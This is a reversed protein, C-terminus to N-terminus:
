SPVIQTAVNEIKALYYELFSQIPSSSPMSFNLFRGTTLDPPLTGRLMQRALNRFRERAEESRHAVANRITAAQELAHTSAQLAGVYPRGGRFFRRARNKVSGVDWRAFRGEGILWERAERRTPPFAFRQPGAGRPPRKGLAYLLFSEELFVEWALYAKLYALDIM